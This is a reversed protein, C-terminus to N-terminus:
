QLDGLTGWGDSDHYKFVKLDTFGNWGKEILYMLQAM